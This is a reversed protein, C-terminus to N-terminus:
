PEDTYIPAHQLVSVAQRALRLTTHAIIPYGEKTRLLLVVAPLGEETANALLAVREIEAHSHEVGDLDAWPSSDLDPRVDLTTM